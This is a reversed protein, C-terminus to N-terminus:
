GSRELVLTGTDDGAGRWGGPVVVTAEPLPIVKPGRFAAVREDPAVTWEVEPGPDRRTRRVTVVEIEGEPDRYGYREDHAEAFAEAIARPEPEVGRLTLEYSQGRYRVDYAVEAADAAAERLAEASLDDGALMVTRAEDHRRDAAALGLASLVGSARPVLIRTIGLEDAIAAAHMPGAGGFALLAFGRPDVGREVTMVRLARVMETNAVRVIGAACEEIELGLQEALRGVAARAAGADLRVGGALPARADLHGLVLNADTVTPETGGQAYAAPGPV